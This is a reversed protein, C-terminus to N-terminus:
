WTGSADRCLLRRRNRAQTADEYDRHALANVIAERIAEEPYEAVEIRKLGSIRLPHRINRDIFALVQEVSQWHCYCPQEDSSANAALAAGCVRSNLIM